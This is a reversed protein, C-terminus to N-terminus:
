DNRKILPLVVTFRTNGADTDVGIIGRLRETAKKAVYLGLGNGVSRESGRYFMEFIHSLVLNDIGEGDDVVQIVFDTETKFSNVYILGRRPSDRFIFANSLLSQLIITILFPDTKLAAEKLDIKVEVEHWSPLYRLSDTVQQIIKEIGIVALTPNELISKSLSSLSRLLDDMQIVKSEVHTWYARNMESQHEFRSLSIIGKISSIPARLDHSTRYLIQDLEFNRDQLQNMTQSLSYNKAMLEEIAATLEEKQSLLEETKDAYDRELEELLITKEQLLQILDEM